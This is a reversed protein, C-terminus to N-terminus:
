RMRRTAAALEAARSAENAPDLEQAREFARLADDYRGRITLGIGEAVCAQGSQPDIRRVEAVAADGEDFREEIYLIEALRAWSDTDPAVRVSARVSQEAEKMRGMSQLLMGRFLWARGNDPDAELMTDIL